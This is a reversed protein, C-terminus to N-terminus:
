NYSGLHSVLFIRRQTKIPSFFNFNSLLILRVTQGRDKCLIETSNLHIRSSNKVSVTAEEDDFTQKERKIDLSLGSTFKEFTPFPGFQSELDHVASCLTDLGNEENSKKAAHAMTRTYRRSYIFQRSRDLDKTKDSGDSPLERNLTYRGIVGNNTGKKHLGFSRKLWDLMKKDVCKDRKDDPYLQSFEKQCDFLITRLCERRFYLDEEENVCDKYLALEYEMDNGEM